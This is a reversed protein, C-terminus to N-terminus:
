SDDCRVISNDHCLVWSYRSEELRKKRDEEKQKLIEDIFERFYQNVYKKIRSKSLDGTIRINNFPKGDKFLMITPRHIMLSEEKVIIKKKSIGYQNALNEVKERALNVPMFLIDAKKFSRIKSASKFDKLLDAIDKKEDKNKKSQYDQYYFLVVSLEYKRLLDFFRDESYATSHRASLDILLGLGACFFSVYMIIRAIYRIKKM